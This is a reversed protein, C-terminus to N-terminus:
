FRKGLAMSGLTSTKDESRDWDSKQYSLSFRGFYNDKELYFGAGFTNVKGEYKFSKGDISGNDSSIVGEMSYDAIIAEVYFLAMEDVRYGFLVMYELVNTKLDTKTNGSIDFFDDDVEKEASGGSVAISLSTNNSKANQRNDGWVQFKAGVVSPTQSVISAFIDIRDHLGLSPSVWNMINEDSLELPNDTNNGDLSVKANTAKAFGASFSGKFMGSAEPSIFRTPPTRLSLSCSIFLCSSFILIILKM